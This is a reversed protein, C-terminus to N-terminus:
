KQMEGNLSCAGYSESGTNIYVKQKGFIPIYTYDGITEYGYSSYGALQDASIRKGGKYIEIYIPGYLEGNCNISRIIFIKKKSISKFKAYCGSSNCSIGKVERYPETTAASAINSGLSSVIAIYFLTLAVNM